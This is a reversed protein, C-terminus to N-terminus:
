GNGLYPQPNISANISILEGTQVSYMVTLFARPNAAVANRLQTLTVQQDRLYYVSTATARLTRMQCTSCPLVTMMSDTASPLTVASADSELAENRTKFPAISQAHATALVSAACWAILMRRLLLDM